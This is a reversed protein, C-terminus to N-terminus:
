HSSRVLTHGLLIDMVPAPPLHALKGLSWLVSPIYRPHFHRWQSPHRLISRLLSSGHMDLIALGRLVSGRERPRLDKEKAAVIDLLRCVLSSMLHPAQPLGQRRCARGTHTQLLSRGPHAHRPLGPLEQRKMHQLRVFVALASTSNVTNFEEHHTDVIKLLEQHSRVANIRHNLQKNHPPAYSSDAM